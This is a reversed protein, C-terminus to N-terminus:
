KGFTLKGRMLTAHFPFSCFFRYNAGATLHTTDITISDQEGGGILRTRTIVRPDEPKLYDHDAGASAGDDLIDQVDSNLSLVWNHGMAETPLKGTHVLTVTFSRCTEPIAIGQKDYTMQDTSHIEIACSEASWATGSCTLLLTLLLPRHM